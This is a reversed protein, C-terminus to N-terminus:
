PQTTPLEAAKQQRPQFNAVALSAIILVAGTILQWSLQEGLFSVGLIVGGLPFLYTVMSTRTPGIEHILYYNLIFAFGSGLMGLWLLAIWTIPLHPIRMPREVTGTALWMVATSSLLPGVSRLVAPTNETTKRAYVSSGAYFMSALVVAGQGLLPSASAGIDKSMLVVVGAFGVLLGLTKYFTIKDDHLALHAIVIVFLPVTADLIAAVASDIAQEGWSILFFPIAVNTIGLLLM